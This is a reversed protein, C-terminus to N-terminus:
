LDLSTQLASYAKQQLAQASKLRQILELEEKELLSILNEAEATKKAEEFLKKDYERKAEQEKRLREREKM